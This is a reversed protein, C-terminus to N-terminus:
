MVRGMEEERVTMIIRMNRMCEKRAMMIRRVNRVYDKRVMMIRRMKRTEKESVMLIKRTNRLYEENSVEYEEDGGGKGDYEGRKRMEKEKVRMIKWM